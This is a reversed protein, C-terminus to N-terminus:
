RGEKQRKRVLIEAAINIAEERTVNQKKMIDLVMGHTLKEVTNKPERDANYIDKLFALQKSIFNNNVEKGPTQALDVLEGAGRMALGVPSIKAAGGVLDFPTVSAEQGDKFASNWAASEQQKMTEYRNPKRITKPPKDSQRDSGELRIVNGSDDIFTGDSRLTGTVMKGNVEAQGRQGGTQQIGGPTQASPQGARDMGRIFADTMPNGTGQQQAINIQEPSIGFSGSAANIAGKAMLRDRPSRNPDKAVQELAQMKSVPDLSLDESVLVSYAKDVLSLAKSPDISAQEQQGAAAMRQRMMDQDAKIRQDQLYARESVYGQGPNVGPEFYEPAGTKQNIFMAKSSAAQREDQAKQRKWNEFGAGIKVIENLDSMGIHNNKAFEQIGEPTFDGLEIFQKSLKEIRDREKGQKYQRIGHVLDGLGARFADQSNREMQALAPILNAM